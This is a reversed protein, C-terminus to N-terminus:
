LSHSLQCTAAFEAVAGARAPATYLKGRYSELM